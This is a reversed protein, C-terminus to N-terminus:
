KNHTITTPHAVGRLETEGIKVVVTKGVVPTMSALIKDRLANEDVDTFAVVFTVAFAAPSRPFNTGPGFAPGKIDRQTIAFKTVTQRAAGKNATANLAKIIEDKRQEVAEADGMLM